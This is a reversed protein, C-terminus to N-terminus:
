PLGPAANPNSQWLPGNVPTEPPPGQYQILPGDDLQTSPPAMLERNLKQTYITNMNTQLYLVYGAMGQLETLDQLPQAAILVAHTSQEAFAQSSLGIGCGITILFAAQLTRVGCLQVCTRDEM